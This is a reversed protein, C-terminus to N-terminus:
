RSPVWEKKGDVGREEEPTVAVGAPIWACVGDISSQCAASSTVSHTLADLTGLNSAAVLAMNHDAESARILYVLRVYNTKAVADFLPLSSKRRPHFQNKEWVEAKILEIRVGSGQRRKVSYYSREYGLFDDSVHVDNGESPQKTVAIYGGSRLIPFVVRVRWGPQLDVYDRQIVEGEPPSTPPQPAPPRICGSLLSLALLCLLAFVSFRLKNM